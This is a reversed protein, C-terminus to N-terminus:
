IRNMFSDSEGMAAHPCLILDKYLSSADLGAAGMKQESMVPGAM